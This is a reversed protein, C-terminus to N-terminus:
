MPVQHARFTGEIQVGDVVKPGTWGKLTVMVIMPWVPRDSFGHERAERQISQIEALVADMTEAMTRHMPLPDHGEVFYPKYGYGRLLETLEERPIRALVTPNAIKYGNLHLIPLVAGDTVPNLFKNSHWSAALAGTEAEGDGVVCVAILDPNDFVAGYAHVI